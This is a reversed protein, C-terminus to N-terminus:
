GCTLEKIALQICEHAVVPKNALLARDAEQLLSLIDSPPKSQQRDGPLPNGNNSKIDM